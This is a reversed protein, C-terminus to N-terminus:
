EVFNKILREFSQDGNNVLKITDFEKQQIDKGVVNIETKYLDRTKILQEMPREIEM